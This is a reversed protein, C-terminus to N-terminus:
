VLKEAILVKRKKKRAQARAYPVINANGKSLCGDIAVVVIAKNVIIVLSLM